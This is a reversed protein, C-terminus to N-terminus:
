FSMASRVSAKLFITCKSIGPYSLLKEKEKKDHFISGFSRTPSRNIIKM